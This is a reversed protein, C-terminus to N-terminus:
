TMQKQGPNAMYMYPSGTQTGKLAFQAPRYLFFQMHTRMRM